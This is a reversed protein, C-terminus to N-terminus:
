NSKPEFEGCAIREGAGRLLAVLAAPNRFGKEVAVSKQLKRDIFQLPIGDPTTFSYAPTLRVGFRQASGTLDLGADVRACLFGAAAEAVAAHDWVFLDMRACRENNEEDWLLFLPRGAAKAAALAEDASLFHLWPIPAAARPAQLDLGEFAAQEASLPPLEARWGEVVRRRRRALYDGLPENPQEFVLRCADGDAPVLRARHEGVIALDSAPFIWSRRAGFTRAAAFADAPMFTFYDGQTGFRGDDDQDLVLLKHDTGAFTATGIGHDIPAVLDCRVEGTELRRLQIPYSRGCAELRDPLDFALRRLGAGVVESRRIAVQSREDDAIRADANGDWGFTATEADETWHIAFCIRRGHSSFAGFWGGAFGDAALGDPMTQTLDFRRMLHKEIGPPDRRPIGSPPFRQLSVELESVPTPRGVEDQAMAAPAALSALLLSRSDIM